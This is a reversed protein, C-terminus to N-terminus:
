QDPNLPVIVGAHTFDTKVTARQELPRNLQGARALAFRWKGSSDSFLLRAQTIVRLWAHTAPMASRALPCIYASCRRAWPACNMAVSLPPVVGGGACQAVVEIIERRHLLIQQGAAQNSGPLQRCM